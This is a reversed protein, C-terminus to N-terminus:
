GLSYLRGLSKNKRLTWQQIKESYRSYRVQLLFHCGVRPNKGPSDWHVSSGPWSCDVSLWVHSVSCEHVCPIQSINGAKSVTFVGHTMFYEASILLFCSQFPLSTEYSTLFEPLQRSCKPTTGGPCGGYMWWVLRNSFFAPIDAHTNIERNITM